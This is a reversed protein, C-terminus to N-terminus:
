GRFFKRVMPNMEEVYRTAISEYLQYVITVTLLIGTGTGLAGTFDAFAAVMGVFIGGMVALPPIYRDLVQEVIRPDRRFGPIQMGIGQIQEAVSHADMGSTYVWFISFLTAFFIMFLLYTLVRVVSLVDPLGTSAISAGTAVLLGLVISSGIVAKTNKRYILENFLIGAFVVLGFILAFLEIQPTRVPTLYYLLGSAANGNQDIEGLFTIGRSSLMTAFLQLNALLAATLIVPINSTYIFKLPWRRGFGSFSGFALPIEVKIDQVFVVIGFVLLTAIIPLVVYLANQVLGNGIYYFMQPVLGAAVEAGEPVLPNLARVFINKSVGAAIFMSIGSGIGWKSVVEDMLLVLFGGFSLQFVLFIFLGLSSNLPQVLGFAVYAYAEFICFFITLLKQVNYFKKRDEPQTLKWGLIGSGVLLQLIISATVIPGIGLSMLSGLSSGFILELYQFRQTAQPSIGYVTIQGLVLFILLIMGTWFLRTKFTPHKEPHSVSPIFSSIQDIM